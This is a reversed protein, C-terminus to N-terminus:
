RDPARHSCLGSPRTAGEVHQAPRIAAAEDFDRRRTWDAHRSTALAPFIRQLDLPGTLSTQWGLDDSNSESPVVAPDGRHDLM